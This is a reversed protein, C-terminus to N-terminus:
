DEFALCSDKQLTSNKTTAGKNLIYTQKDVGFSWNQNVNSRNWEFSTM